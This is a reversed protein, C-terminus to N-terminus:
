SKSWLSELTTSNVMISLRIILDEKNLYHELLLPTFLFLSFPLYPLFNERLSSSQSVKFLKSDLYVFFMWSSSLLFFIVVLSLSFFLPSLCYSHNIITFFSAQFYLTLFFTFGASFLLFSALILLIRSNKM